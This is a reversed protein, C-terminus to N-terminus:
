AINYIDTFTKMTSVTCHVFNYHMKGCHLVVETFKLASGRQLFRKGFSAIEAGCKSGCVINLYVM